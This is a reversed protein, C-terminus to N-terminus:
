KLNISDIGKEDLTDWNGFRLRIFESPVKLNIILKNVFDIEEKEIKRDAKVIGIAVEILILKQSETYDLVVQENLVTDILRIGNVKFDSSLIEIENSIKYGSFYFDKQAINNLINIEDQHIDGDCAMSCFGIKILNLTFDKQNM